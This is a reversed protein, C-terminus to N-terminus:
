KYSNFPIPPISTPPPPIVLGSMTALQKEFSAAMENIIGSAGDEIKAKIAKFPGITFTVHNSNTPGVWTAGTWFVKTALGFVVSMIKADLNTSKKTTKVVEEESEKKKKETKKALYAKIKAIIIKIKKIIFNKFVTLEKKLLNFVLLIFSQNKKLTKYIKQLVVRVKVNTIQEVDCLTKVVERSKNLYKRELTLINNVISMDQLVGGSLVQMAEEVQKPTKPPNDILNEIAKLATSEPTSKVLKKFESIFDTERIDKITEILGFTLAEIVKLSEFREKFIIKETNLEQVRTRPQEYKQYLYYGDLFGNIAIENESLRYKSANINKVITTANKGMKFVYSGLLIQRQIQKKREEAKKKKAEAAEKKKKKDEVSSNTPIAKEAAAAKEKASKKIKNKISVGLQKIKNAITKIIKQIRPKLKNLISQILTKLSKRNKPIIVLKPPPALGNKEANAEKNLQEISKVTEVLTDIEEVLSDYENAYATIRSSSREFFTKFTQIDCKTQIIILAMQDAFQKLGISSAYDKAKVSEKESNVLSATNTIAQKATAVANEIEQKIAKFEDDLSTILNTVKGVIAAISKGAKIYLKVKKKIRKIKAATQKAKKAKAEAAKKYLEDSKNKKKKAAHDAMKQKIKEKIIALKQKLKVKVKKVLIDKKKELKKLQPKLLTALITFRKLKDLVVRMKPRVPALKRVYNILQAPNLIGNALTLFEKAIGLLKGIVYDKLQKTKADGMNAELQTGQEGVFLAIARIGAINTPDFNKITEILQLEKSFATAFTQPGLELKVSDFAVELNVVNFTQEQITDKIADIIEEILKPLQKLEEKVIKIQDIITKVQRQTNKIKLIIQKTTLILADISAKNLGLEKTFYYSHIIKYLAKERSQASPKTIGSAGITFPPPATPNLGPAPLVPPVGVPLGSTVTDIYAKTITKAWDEAGGILGNDLKLLIPQTFTLAFNYPM